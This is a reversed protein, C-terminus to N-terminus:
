SRTDRSIRQLVLDFRGGRTTAILDRSEGEATDRDMGRVRRLWVSLDSVSLSGLEDLAAGTAQPGFAMDDLSRAIRRTALRERRGLRWSRSLWPFGVQEARVTEFALAVCGPRDTRAVPSWLRELYARILDADAAVPRRISHRILYGRRTGALRTAVTQHAEAWGDREDGGLPDTSPLEAGFGLEHFLRETLEALRQGPAARPAPWDLQVDTWRGGLTNRLKLAAFRSFHSQGQEVEGHALFVLLRPPPHLLDDLTSRQRRRDLKMCESPAAGCVTQQAARRAHSVQAENVLGAQLALRTALEVARAADDISPGPQLPPSHVCRQRHRNLWNIDALWERDLAGSEHVRRILRGLEMRATSPDDLLTKLGAEVLVAAPVIASSAACGLLHVEMRILLTIAADDAPMSLAGDREGRTGNTAVIWPEARAGPGRGNFEAENQTVIGTV